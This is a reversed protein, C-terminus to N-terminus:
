GPREQGADLLVQHLIRQSASVSLCLRHHAGWPRTELFPGLISLTPASSPCICNTQSKDGPM